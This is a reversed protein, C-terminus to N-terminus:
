RNAAPEKFSFSQILKKFTAEHKAPSSEIGAVQFFINGWPIAYLESQVRYTEDKATTLDYECAFYVAARGSVKREVADTRVKFNRLTAGMARCSAAIADRFSDFTRNPNPRAVVNITPILGSQTRPDYQAYSGLVVSDRDSALIAAIDEKAQDLKRVNERMKEPEAQFWDRPPQFSVGYREFVVPGDNSAKAGAEGSTKCCVLIAIAALLSINATLKMM